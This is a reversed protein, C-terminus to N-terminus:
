GQGNRGCAASTAAAARESHYDRYWKVFRGIGDRLTTTPKFNLDRTSSAIDAHTDRVEGPPMGHYRVRATMGLCEELISILEILEVPRNSGLNYLRSLPSLEEENTLEGLGREAQVIAAVVDDIYTFDRRMRGQNFVDISEGAMIARTFKYIAMDPRGWPGYVTFLRLGTTRLGYLHSYTYALLENCRKTAAYLSVPQNVPDNVAFPLKTNNGYVSSSSAYILHQLHTRRCGELVNVFAVLNSDVYAHPNEASYRVGAQAAFHFVGDFHANEFLAAVTKRDSLDMRLFMFQPHRQLRSLRDRKLQGDYYGNVNDVGLVYHGTELLAESLHYGVFGAAGTVLYSSTM